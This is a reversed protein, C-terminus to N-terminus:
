DHAAFQANPHVPPAYERVREESFEDTSSLYNPIITLIQTNILQLRRIRDAMASLRIGGVVEDKGDTKQMRHLYYSFDLVESRRHQVIMALIGLQLSDGFLTRLLDFIMRFFILFSFFQIRVCVRHLEVCKDIWLVGNAPYGGSWIPDKKLIDKIRVLVMEFINLGCCLREKTMLEADREWEAQKPTGYKEVVKTLQIRSYKEELKALAKQQEALNNAPPKPLHNFTAAILLDFGRSRSRDSELQMCVVLINGLRRWEHCIEAKLDTYKGVQELHHLYYQLAGNSGYDSRPLKCVKPMLSLV